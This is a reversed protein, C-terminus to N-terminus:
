WEYGMDEAIRYITVLMIKQQLLANCAEKDGEAFREHAVRDLEEICPIASAAERITQDAEPESGSAFAAAALEQSVHWNFARFFDRLEMSPKEHSNVRLWETLAEKDIRGAALGLITREAEDVDADLSWGNEALFAVMAAFAARKNGDIFPHNKCIHFAYAAAMDPIAPHAYEGGFRHKPMALASELLGQDRLAPDGGQDEIAIRHLILVDEVSLFQIAKDSM